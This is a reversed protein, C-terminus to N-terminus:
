FAGQYATKHAGSHVNNSNLGKIYNGMSEEYLGLEENGMQRNQTDKNDRLARGAVYHVLAEDLDIPMEIEDTLEAVITKKVYYVKLADEMTLEADLSVGTNLEAFEVGRIDTIIGYDSSRESTFTPLAGPAPYIKFFGPIAKDYIVLEPTGFIASWKSQLGDMEQHTVFGLPSRNYEVRTIKYAITSLDYYNLGEELGVYIESKLYKTKDAIRRLGKNVLSVLRPDDWAKGDPDSLTRRADTVIEQVTSM